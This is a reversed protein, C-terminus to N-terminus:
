ATRSSPAFSVRKSTRLLPISPRVRRRRRRGGKYDKLVAAVEPTAPIEARDPKPTPYFVGLTRNSEKLYTKAVRTVDEPTVTKIRDRNLFLLRWDGM